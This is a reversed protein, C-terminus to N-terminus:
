PRDLPTAFADAHLRAYAIALAAGFCQAVLFGAVDGPRIGSFTPTFARAITVAPNAFSTSATFWYAAAIYTGVAAALVPIGYRATGRITLVLGFTAVAEAIWQGAGTRVTASPAWLPAEFMAHALAVGCLAGALQAALYGTAMPLSLTRALAAGTTVLPNFHAGSVPAFTLILVFLGGGTALSNALLAIATNGNALREGMIGSGVVVALLLATGVFEAALRRLVGGSV